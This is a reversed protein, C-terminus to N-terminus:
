TLLKYIYVYQSDQEQILRGYTELQTIAEWLLTEFNAISKYDGKLM